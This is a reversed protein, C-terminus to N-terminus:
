NVSMCNCIIYSVNNVDRIIKEYKLVPQVVVTSYKVNNKTNVASYKLM